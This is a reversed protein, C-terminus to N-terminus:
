GTAVRPQPREDPRRGRAADVLATVLPHPSTRRSSGVQPQFLTALYFRHSPLEVAEVGADAATASVVLGAAVLAGAHAPDLGYGCWHFGAFPAPGCLSELLTGPVPTVTREQGVLSCALPAVVRVQASPDAEAHAAGALGAVNRAFEVLMYQFGGCTGLIPMGGTRAREIAALAAGDDRYPTGPVVWVADFADIRRADPGDTAVWRAAVDGPLLALCADLERHTLHRTDRDGLVALSVPMGPNEGIRQPGAAAV